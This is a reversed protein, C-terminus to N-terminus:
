PHDIPLMSPDEGRVYRVICYRRGSLCQPYKNSEGCASLTNGVIFQQSKALIGDSLKSPIRLSSQVLPACANTKLGDRM